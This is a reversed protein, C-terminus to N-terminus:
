VTLKSSIYFVEYILHVEPQNPMLKWNPQEYGRYPENPKLEPPNFIDFIGM